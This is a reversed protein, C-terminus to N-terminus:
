WTIGPPGLYDIFSQSFSKNGYKVKLDYNRLERKNSLKNHYNNLKFKKVLYMIVNKKYLYRIPEVFCSMLTHM